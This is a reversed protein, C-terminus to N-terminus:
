RPEGGKLLARGGSGYGPVPVLDGVARNLGHLAEHETAFGGRARLVTGNPTSISWKWFVGSREVKAQQGDPLTKTM